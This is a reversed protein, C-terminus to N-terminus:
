VGGTSNPPEDFGLRLIRNGSEMLRKAIREAVLAFDDKPEVAVVVQSGDKLMFTLRYGLESHAIVYSYGDTLDDVIFTDHLVTVSDKNLDLDEMELKGTTMAQLSSLRKLDISHYLETIM